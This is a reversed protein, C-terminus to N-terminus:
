RVSRAPETGTGFRRLSWGSARMARRLPQRRGGHSSGSAPSQWSRFASLGASMVALIRAMPLSASQM